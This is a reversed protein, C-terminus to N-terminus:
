LARIHIITCASPGRPAVRAAPRRQAASAAMGCDRAHGHCLRHSLTFLGHWESFGAGGEGHTGLMLMCCPRHVPACPPSPRVMLPVYPSLRFLSGPLRGVLAGGVEECCAGRPRGANHASPPQLRFAEAGDYMYVLADHAWAAPAPAPMGSPGLRALLAAPVFGTIRATAVDWTTGRPFADPVFAGTPM